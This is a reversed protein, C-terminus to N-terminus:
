KAGKRPHTKVIYKGVEVQQEIKDYEEESIAYFKIYQGARPLIPMERKPDYMRVPTRGILQWGGPSDIPYVGTQSGAIGVSGAPILQRPTKLRPTSIEESMGGLYMFGPTFGLMYILYETSTHINIVEDTTKHNYEAVNRIDPGKDGIYCVPIELIDTPPIEINRMDYVLDNLCYVLRDYSIICPDYHIIISRYTPVTEKVGPIDASKIAINFIRVRSNIYESIENGFEVTIAADGALLFKVYPM